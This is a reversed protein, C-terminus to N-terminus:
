TRWGCLKATHLSIAQNSAAVYICIQLLGDFIELYGPSGTLKQKGLEQPFHGLIEENSKFLVTSHFFAPLKRLLMLEDCQYTVQATNYFRQICQLADVTQLSANASHYIKQCNSYM